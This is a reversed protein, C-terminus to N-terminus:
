SCFVFLIRTSPVEMFVCESSNSSIQPLPSLSHRRQKNILISGRGVTLVGRGRHSESPLSHVPIQVPPSTVYFNWQAGM